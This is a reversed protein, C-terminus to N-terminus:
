GTIFVSGKVLWIMLKIKYYYDTGHSFHTLLTFHFATMVSDNAQIVQIIGASFKTGLITNKKNLSNKVSLVVCFGPTEYRHMM